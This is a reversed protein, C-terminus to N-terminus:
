DFSLDIKHKQAETEENTFYNFQLFHSEFNRAKLIFSNVCTFCASSLYFTTLPLSLGPFADWLSHGTSESDYPPDLSTQPIYIQMELDKAKNKSILINLVRGHPLFSVLLSDESLFSLWAFNQWIVVAGQLRHTPENSWSM